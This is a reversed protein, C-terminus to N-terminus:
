LSFNISSSCVWFLDCWGDNSYRAPIMFVGDIEKGLSWIMDSQERYLKFSESCEL